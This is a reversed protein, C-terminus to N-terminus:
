YSVLDYHIFIDHEEKNPALGGIDSILKPDGDLFQPKSGSLLTKFDVGFITFFKFCRVQLHCRFM